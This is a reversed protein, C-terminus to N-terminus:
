EDKAKWYKDLYAIGEKGLDHMGKANFRKMVAAKYEKYSAGDAQMKRCDAKGEGPGDGKGHPGKGDLKYNRKENLSNKLIMEKLNM